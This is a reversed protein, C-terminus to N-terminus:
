TPCLDCHGPLDHTFEIPALATRLPGVLDDIRRNTDMWEVVVANGSIEISSDWLNLLLRETAQPTDPLATIDWYSELAATIHGNQVSWLLDFVDVQKNIIGMLVSTWGNSPGLHLRAQEANAAAYVATAKAQFGNTAENWEDMLASQRPYHQRFAQRMPSGADIPFAMAMARRGVLDRAQKAFAQINSVHDRYAKTDKRGAVFHEYESAVYVISVVTLAVEPAYPQLRPPLVPLVGLLWGAIVAVVVIAARVLLSGRIRMTM